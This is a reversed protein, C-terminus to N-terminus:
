LTAEPVTVYGFRVLMQMAVTAGNFLFHVVMPAWISGTWEYLFVLALGFIFLPLLASMSGHAASFILASVVAGVWLGNFKKLVPYLYGRFVVEECIPAVIVATVGMLVLVAVDENKQFLEVTDQVQKVGLSEMLENYGMSYLGAFIVWMLVVTGPGMLLLWPWGQWKMGLWQVPRMRTVVIVLVLGALFFQLGINFVLDGASIQIERGSKTMWLNMLVMLYYFGTIAGVVLLDRGGYIWSPVKGLPIEPPLSRDSYAVIRWSAAVVFLFVALGYTAHMIIATVNEMTEGRVQGRSGVLAV